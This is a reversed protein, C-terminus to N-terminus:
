VKLPEPHQAAHPHNVGSYIKLKKLLSRGLPNKPLMGWVANELVAQSKLEMLKEASVERIGGVYGSYKFYKKNQLKRGTFRLQDSNIAVVFDGTDSHPTFTPKHKGRLIKSIESAARGVIQNKLDVLYWKQQVNESTFMPTKSPRGKLTHGPVTKSSTSTKKKQTQKKPASDTTSSSPIKKEATKKKRTPAKKTSKKVSKKPAM